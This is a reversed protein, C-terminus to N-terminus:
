EDNRDLNKRKTEEELVQVEMKASLYTSVFPNSHKKKL